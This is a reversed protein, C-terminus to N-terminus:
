VSPTGRGWTPHSPHIPPCVSLQAALHMVQRLPPRVSPRASSTAPHPPSSCRALPWFSPHTSLHISPRICPHVPLHIPCASPCISPCAPPHVLPHISLHISPCTSPRVLPHVPLCVSLRISLRGLPPWERRGGQPVQRLHQHLQPPGPPRLARPGHVQLSPAPFRPHPRPEAWAGGVCGTGGWGGSGWAGGIM